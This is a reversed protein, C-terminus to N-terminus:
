PSGSVMDTLKWAGDKWVLHWQDAVERRSPFVIIVRGAGAGTVRAPDDRGGTNPGGPCGPKKKKCATEISKWNAHKVPKQNGEFFWDSSEYTFPFAAVKDLGARGPDGLAKEIAAYAAPLAAVAAADLGRVTEIASDASRLRVGSICSDNMKGKKVTDITIKISSVAANVAVELWEREAAPTVKKAAGGDFSIALSTIRNNAGFLKPTLWVGAAIQLQAIKTPALLNITISEGIGEDPKGECWATKPYDTEEGDQVVTDFQLVRWAGYRDKKDAFTSSATIDKVAAFTGLKPLAEVADETPEQPPPPPRKRGPTLGKVIEDFQQKAKDNKAIGVLVVTKSDRQAMAFQVPAGDLTAVGIRMAAGQLTSDAAKGPKFSKIANGGVRLASATLEGETRGLIEDLTGEKKVRLLVITLNPAAPEDVVVVGDPGTTQKWPHGISPLIFDMWYGGVAEAHASPVSSLGVVASAVILGLRTLM